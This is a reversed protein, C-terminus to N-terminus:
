AVEFLRRTLDNLASHFQEAGGFRDTLDTVSGMTALPAVRLAQASLETSGHHEFKDLLADLVQQAEPAFAAFFARHERRMRVVREERSVLPLGWAANLLLDIVDVDPNQLKETLEEIAIGSAELAETLARRSAAVAWRARLDSPELHLERVRDHVFQRYTVLRMTRGDSELQYFAEGWKYVEVGDVYFRKVAEARVRDIMDPDDVIGGSDEDAPDFEGGEEPSYDPEPEGVEDDAEPEPTADESELIRGQDDIEDQQIRLPPGDFAPDNFLVTSEVFDIIDFSGKGVELCLRTGRGITQKFEPMSTIRRFIVINRVSPIDVGTSLLRSTVAIVPQRTDQRRFDDLHAQGPTEDASTIRVVYNPYRQVLDSNANTLAVRMRHAHDNNECFVITKAMRDTSHLYDTLYRAAEETRELLVMIREYQQPTYLRDPIENGYKDLQGPEPRFGTMDVNLRVRRVRYPALFGDDIGQALSYTYVPNGFYSHTVADGQDVPTATMGLHTAPSFYELIARWESSERASGRHCEDVIILDFYDRPYQQFLPPDGATLSQYLAFYVQRGRVAEGQIRHVVDRFAPTFYDIRPQDALINRDALYLVRPKRGPIWGAQRLKAVIQFAVMTKGTGTALTLLIRKQDRGIAALARNVALRQYYRPRKVSNDWNRLQHNFPAQVLRATLESDIVEHSQFRAWLDAPSPFAAVTNIRGALLDIEYITQGNTAYAFPLGLRLAYRKAQEIGDAASIRTRKAEVVGIPLDARYELVYDAILPRGPAHRRATAVIKGDNIRYQSRIQDDNWGAHALAPLVYARCTEDENLDGDIAM